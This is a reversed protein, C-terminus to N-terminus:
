KPTEVKFVYAAAPVTFPVGKGRALLEDRSLGVDAAKKPVMYKSLASTTVSYTRQGSQLVVAVLRLGDTVAAVGADGHSDNAVIIGGPRVFRACSHTVPGAYFSLLADFSGPEGVPLSAATYDHPVWEWTRAKNHGGVDDHHTEILADVSATDAFFRAAAKDNDVYTVHPWVFSASVDVWCGPYLVRVVEPFAVAVAKLLAAREGSHYDQKAWLESVMKTHRLM